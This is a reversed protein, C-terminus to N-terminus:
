ILLAPFAVGVRGLSGAASPVVRNRRAHAPLRRRQQSLVFRRAAEGFHSGPPRPSGVASVRNSQPSIVRRSPRTLPWFSNWRRRSTGCTRALCVAAGYAAPEIMNQGGRQGDLSGGVFAVDALGWLAALEGITDVLILNPRRRRWGLESRARVAAGFAAAAGGGRRLPGEAAAGADAAGAGATPPLHRPCGAGRAGAHQRRDLRDDPEVGLLRRLEPRRTAATASAGDYKVSRHRPASRRCASRRLHERVGGDAGRFAVAIWGLGPLPRVRAIAACARPSLRGNIVVVPVGAAQAAVLIRGCSGRALVVLRGYGGCPGGCRGRSTSRGSSSRCTPSTSARRTSAPTPRRPSSASGTPIRRRFAARRRLLHIEGVSVGHFWVCPGAAPPVHVHGPSSRGFGRRYSGTRLRALPVPRRRSILM